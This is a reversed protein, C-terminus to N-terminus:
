SRDVSSATTINPTNQVHMYEYSMNLSTSSYLVDERPAPRVYDVVGHSFFLVSIISVGM